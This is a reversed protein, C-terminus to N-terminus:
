RLYEALHNVESYQVFPSDIKKPLKTTVSKFPTAVYFQDFHAPTSNQVLFEIQGVKETVASFVDGLSGGLDTGLAKERTGQFRPLTEPSVKQVQYREDWRRRAMHTNSRDSLM